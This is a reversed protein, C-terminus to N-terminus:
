CAAKAQLVHLTAGFVHTFCNHRHRSASIPCDAEPRPIIIGSTRKAHAPSALASGQRGCRAQRDSGSLRRNRVSM